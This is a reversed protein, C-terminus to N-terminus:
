GIYGNHNDLNPAIEKPGFRLAHFAEVKIIFVNLFIPGLPWDFRWAYKEYQCIFIPFNASSSSQHSQGRIKGQPMYLYNVPSIYHKCTKYIFIDLLGGQTNFYCFSCKQFKASSSRKTVKVQKSRWFHGSTKGIHQFPLILM